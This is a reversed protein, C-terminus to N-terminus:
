APDAHDPIYEEENKPIDFIESFLAPLDLRRWNGRCWSLLNHHRDGLVRVEQALANFSELRNAVNVTGNETMVYMFAENVTRLLSEVLERDSLGNREPSVLLCATFIAAEDDTMELNIVGRVYSLIGTAFSTDYMSELQRHSLSTGDDFVIATPNSIRTARTLWVEFFGLKILILQDDQPLIHFGPLRKAFEVVQQVAPTMRYAVNSWLVTLTELRSAAAVSGDDAAGDVKVALEASCSAGAANAANAANEANAANAVNAENAANAANAADANSTSANSGSSGAQGERNDDVKMIFTQLQLSRRFDETYSNLNRHAMIVMKALDKSAEMADVDQEQEPPAPASPAPENNALNKALDAMSEPPTVDRRKPIRGYRVSDRSMGVAICKKFRCYQCRNRNLRYVLCKGDRLCRYEIQKQISRRFFGKCGECSTVGYHYGSAKDGCVKCPVTAKGSGAGAGEAQTELSISSSEPEEKFAYLDEEITSTAEVLVSGSM